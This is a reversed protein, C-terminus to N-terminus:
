PGEAKFPRAAGRLEQTRNRTPTLKKIQTLFIGEGTGHWLV